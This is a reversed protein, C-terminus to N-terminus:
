KQVQTMEQMLQTQMKLFKATQQPTMRNGAAQLRQGVDQGKAYLAPYDAAATMDGAGAKRMLRATQRMYSAYDAILQDWNENDDGTTSEEVPDANFAADARADAAAAADEAADLEDQSQTDSDDMDLQSVPDANAKDKMRAAITTLCLQVEAGAKGYAPPDSDKLRQELDDSISKCPALLAAMVKNGASELEAKTLDPHQALYSEANKDLCDCLDQPTKPSSCGVTFLGLALLTFFLSTTRM